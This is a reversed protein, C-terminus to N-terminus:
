LQGFVEYEGTAVISFREGTLQTTGFKEETFLYHMTLKGGVPFNSAKMVDSRTENFPASIVVGFSAPDSTGGITHTTYGFMQVFEAITAPAKEGEHSWAYHLTVGRGFIGQGSTIRVSLSVWVALPHLELIKAARAQKWPEWTGAGAIAGAKITGATELYIAEAFRHKGMREGGFAM